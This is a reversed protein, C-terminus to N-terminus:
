KKSTFDRIDRMVRGKDPENLSNYDIYKNQRKVQGKECINIVEKKTYKKDQLKSYHSVSYFEYDPFHINIQIDLETIYTKLMSPTLCRFINLFIHSDSDLKFCLDYLEDYYTKIVKEDYDNKSYQIFGDFSAEAQEQAAQRPDTM